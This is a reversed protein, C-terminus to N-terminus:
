EWVITYHEGPYFENNHEQGIYSSKIQRRRESGHEVDHCVHLMVTELEEPTANLHSLVVEVELGERMKENSHSDNVEAHRRIRISSTKFEDDWILDCDWHQVGSGKAKVPFAHDIANITQPHPNFGISTFM